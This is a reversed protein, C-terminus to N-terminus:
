LESELFRLSRGSGVGAGHDGRATAYSVHPLPRAAGGPLSFTFVRGGKTSM